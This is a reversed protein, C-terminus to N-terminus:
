ITENMLVKCYGYRVRTMNKNQNSTKKKTNQVSLLVPENTVMPVPYEELPSFFFYINLAM